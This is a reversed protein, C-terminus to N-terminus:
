ELPIHVNFSDNQDVNAACFLVRPKGNEFWLQPRELRALQQIQGNDWRIQPTSVLPHPAVTWDFGNHSEFLVLAQGAKTFYGRMDKVIAYYRDSVYWIFPDEAPFKAGEKTFIPYPRKVFPGLPSDSTAAVHVVPGGFPLKGKDGVAKYVMLYGGDPRQTISPNSCCLADYFGPTVDILPKDFRKWPGNPDDAVAVGIRQHNRNDWYSLNGTNGMYYLYYKDSFKHITPNHTCLGDWFDKGRKPLAINVHHYPGLPTDAVAHAVESHTAWAGFGLKRPWRSYFLHYKGKEDAVMSGCWIYYNPDIFKAYAPVPKILSQLDLNSKQATDEATLATTISQTKKCGSLIFALFLISVLIIGLFKRTM